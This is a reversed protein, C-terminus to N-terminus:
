KKPRHYMRHQENYKPFDRSLMLATEKWLDEPTRWGTRLAESYPPMYDRILEYCIESCYWKEPDEIHFLGKFLAGMWDYKPKLDVFDQARKRIEDEQMPSIWPLPVLVWHYKDYKKPEGFRMGKPDMILVKGDTFVLETHYAKSLTFISILTPILGKDRDNIAVALHLM